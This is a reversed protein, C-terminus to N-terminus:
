GAAATEDSQERLLAMPDAIHVAPHARTLRLLADLFSWVTEDHDRHHLLVGLTTDGVGSVRRQALFGTLEAILEEHRRGVRGGHWDMVDLDTDLLAPGGAKELQHGRFCSLGAFGLAPLRAAHSRDIRNWPPVFIPVIEPGLLDRLRMSAEAIEAAVTEM